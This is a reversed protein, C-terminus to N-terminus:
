RRLGGREGGVSLGKIKLVLARIICQLRTHIVGLPLAIKYRNSRGRYDGCSIM